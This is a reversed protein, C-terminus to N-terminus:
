AIPVAPSPTVGTTSASSNLPPTLATSAAVWSTGSYVSAISFASLSGAGTTSTGSKLPPTFPM